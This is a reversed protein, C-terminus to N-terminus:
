AGLQRRYAAPPLGFQAKFARSFHAQDCFGVSAAIDVLTTKPSRM